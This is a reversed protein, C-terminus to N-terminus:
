PAPTWDIAVAERVASRIQPADINWIGQAGQCPIPHVFRRVNGLIWFCHNDQLSRHFHWEAWRPLKDDWTLCDVLDCVGVLAGFTLKPLAIDKWDRLWEKSKGAHILLEGRYNTTWTRNEIRKPPITESFQGVSELAALEGPDAVVFYAHPQCITLAKM